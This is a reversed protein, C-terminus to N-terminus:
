VPSTIGSAPIPTLVQLRTPLIATPVWRPSILDRWGGGIKTLQGAKAQADRGYRGDQRPYPSSDGTNAETCAVLRSSGDFCTDQGTDNIAANIAANAPLWPFVASVLLAALGLVGALWRVSRFLNMMNSEGTIRPIKLYSASYYAIVSGTESKGVTRIIKGTKQDTERPIM